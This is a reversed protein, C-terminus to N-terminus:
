KNTARNQSVQASTAAELRGGNGDTRRLVSKTTIKTWDHLSIDRAEAQQSNSTALQTAVGFRVVGNRASCSVAVLVAADARDPTTEDTVTHVRKQWPALPFPNITELEEMAFDKSYTQWM